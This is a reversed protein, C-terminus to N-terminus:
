AQDLADFVLQQFRQILVESNVLLRGQPVTGSDLGRQVSEVLAVDELGVQTGFAKIEAIRDETVGEGFYYDTVEITKGPGAPVWREISLNTIGPDVNITTNPWVYHYQSQTVEGRPTYPAKGNGALASARVPGFQSLVRKDV